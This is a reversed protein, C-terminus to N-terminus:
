TRRSNRVVVFLGLGVMCVTMAGDLWMPRTVPSAPAAPPAPPAAADQASVDALCVAGVLLLSGIGAILQHRNTFSM